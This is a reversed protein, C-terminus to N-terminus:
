EDFHLCKKAVINADCCFKRSLNSYFLSKMSYCLSQKHLFSMFLNRNTCYLSSTIGSIESLTKQDFRMFHVFDDRFIPSTDLNWRSFYIILNATFISALIIVLLKERLDVWNAFFAFLVKTNLFPQAFLEAIHNFAIEIWILPAILKALLAFTWWGNM